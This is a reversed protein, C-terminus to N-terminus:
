VKLGRGPLCPGQGEQEMESEGGCGWVGGFKSALRACPLQKLGLQHNPIKGSTLLEWCYLLLPKNGRVLVAVRSCAPDDPPLAIAM